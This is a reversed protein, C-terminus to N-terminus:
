RYKERRVGQPREGAVFPSATETAARYSFFFAEEQQFM